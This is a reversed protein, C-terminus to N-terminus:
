QMDEAIKDYSISMEGMDPGYSTAGLMKHVVVPNSQHFGNVAYLLEEYSPNTSAMVSYFKDAWARSAQFINPSDCALHQIFRQTMGAPRPTIPNAYTLGLSNASGNFVVTYTIFGSALAPNIGDFIMVTPGEAYATTDTSLESTAIQSVTHIASVQRLEATTIPAGFNFPRNTLNRTTLAGGSALTFNAQIQSISPDHYGFITGTANLNTAVATNFVVSAAVVSFSPVQATSGGYLQNPISVVPLGLTSTGDWQWITLITPNYQPTFLAVLGVSGAVASYSPVQIADSVKLVCTPYYSYETAHVNAFREPYFYSMVTAVDVHGLTCALHRPVMGTATHYNQANSVSGVKNFALGASSKSVLGSTQMVTNGRKVVDKKSKLYQSYVDYFSPTLIFKKFDTFSITMGLDDRLQMLDEVTCERGLRSEIAKHEKAEDEVGDLTAALLLDKNPIRIKDPFNFVKRIKDLNESSPDIQFKNKFAEKEADYFQKQVQEKQAYPVGLDSATVGYPMLYQDEVGHVDAMFKSTDESAAAALRKLSLGYFPNARKDHTLSDLLTKFDEKTMKIFKEGQAIKKAGPRKRDNQWKEQTYKVPEEKADSFAKALQGAAAKYNPNLQQETMQNTPYVGPSYNLTRKPYM